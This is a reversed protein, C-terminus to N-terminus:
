HQLMSVEHRSLDLERGASNWPRGRKWTLELETGLRLGESVWNQQLLFRRKGILVNAVTGDRFNSSDWIDFGYTWAGTGCHALM